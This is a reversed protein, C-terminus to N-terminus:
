IDEAIPTEADSCGPFYRVDARRGRGSSGRRATGVAKEVAAQGAGLFESGSHSPVALQMEHKSNSKNNVREAESEGVRERACVRAALTQAVVGRLREAGGERGLSEGGKGVMVSGRDLPLFFRSCLPPTFVVIPM